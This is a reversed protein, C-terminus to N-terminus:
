NVIRRSCVDLFDYPMRVEDKFLERLPEDPKMRMNAPLGRPLAVEDRV